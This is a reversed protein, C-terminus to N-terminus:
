DRLRRAAEAGLGDTIGVHFRGIQCCSKYLTHVRTSLGQYLLALSFGGPADCVIDNNFCVDMTRGPLAARRAGLSGTGIRRPAGGPFISPTLAYSSAGASYPDAILVVARVRRLTDNNLRRVAESVVAAGQSYGILAVRTGGCRRHLERLYSRLMAVGQDISRLFPRGLDRALDSVPAARYPLSFMGVGRGGLTGKLVRATAGVTDGMDFPGALPEGSGRVGVVQYRFCVRKGGLAGGLQLRVFAHCITRSPGPPLSPEPPLPHTSCARLREGDGSVTFRTDGYGLFGCTSFRIWAVLGTYRRGHGSLIWPRSAFQRACRTGRPMQVITGAYNRELFFPRIQVVYGSAGDLVWTGEIPQAKAPASAPSALLLLSVASVAAVAIRM